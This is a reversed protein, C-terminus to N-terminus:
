GGFIPSRPNLSRAKRYDRLAVAPLDQETAIRSAVLWMAWDTPARRVAEEIARTAGPVDGLQELVLAQQLRPTAAAPELQQANNADRLADILHGNAAAKQSARVASTAGLPVLITWLAVLCVAVLAGRGVLWKRGAPPAAGRPEPDASSPALCIAALFMMVMPIVAIQWDWDFAAAACFATVGSIASARVAREESTSSLARRASSIITVLFFGALLLLGIIGLEALTELWLSHANLVFEGLTQHQAWYFQFTGPGIGTWVSSEFAHLAVQWYQYRHSGAVSALRFYASGGSPANPQKFQEWLRQAAGSSIFLLIGAAVVMLISVGFARAARISVRSWAPRGRRRVTIVAIAQVVGAVLAVVVLIALMSHREGAPAVTATDALTRRALLAVMLVATAAGAILGSILKPLRDPSLALFAVTGVAAALIGGRSVTMGLCLLVIPLGAAGMSRAWVSRTSAAVYWLLPIGLAAFEGVGDSYDFPYSLRPTLYVRNAANAPYLSPLLKSVVAAACVTAIGGALGTLLARGAGRRLAFSGLILTGGYTAVRGVENRTLEQDSTWLTGLWTWVFYGAFLAVAIWFARSPETRPVVGLIAGLLVLWWIIIGVQSRVVIDYGGGSLALYTVLGFAALWIAALEPSPLRRTVRVPRPCPRTPSATAEL